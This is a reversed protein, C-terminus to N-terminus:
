APIDVIKRMWMFGAIGAVIAGLVMIQGGTRHLLPDLYDPNLVYVAGGIVVPLIALVIASIRGEATLTKVEQRLRERAVMTDAVTSLLEALNGGVERQIGIAMVVWDYDPVHARKASDELAVELPRGLRAEVLVRRLEKGMPDDMQEATADAAQLLSFGARLSSALLRLVDPLQSAFKRQRRRGLSDLVAIPVLGFVVLALVAFFLGSLLATAVVAAAVGVVYFFLAEAPRVPLDAAELKKELTELVNGGKALRATADVARQVLATQALDLDGGGPRMEFASGGAPGYQELRSALGPVGARTIAVVGVVLLSAALFVVIAVVAVSGRGSLVGGFRSEGVIEPSATVGEAVSGANVPGATTIRGGTALSVTVSGTTDTSTYSIEFQNQIDRQVTDYVAKLSEPNTTETYTGGSSSSLRRLSGADFEGGVLGVAFLSSKAGLVASEAADVNSASVTDAGDSLVVINAQLDARDGFLTAATRIGDFLATEGSAALGDIARNLVAQDGTFGSVVQVEQNFAVVAIQDNALKQSVFQKAAEKAAALKAGQRMSGSIDIVLAVGVPTDTEGLPVVEIPTVIKGNERLTFSDQSAPAGSVQASIVVRPFNEFDIKRIVISEAASAAPAVGVLGVVAVFLAAILRKM